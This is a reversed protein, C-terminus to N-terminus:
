PEEGLNRGPTYRVCYGLTVSTHCIRSLVVLLMLSVDWDLAYTVEGGPVTCASSSMLIYAM